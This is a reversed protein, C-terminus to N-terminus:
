SLQKKIFQRVPASLPWYILGIFLGIFMASTSAAAAGIDILLLGTAFTSFCLASIYILLFLKSKYRMSIAAVLGATTGIFSLAKTGEIWFRMQEETLQRTHSLLELLHPTQEHHLWATVLYTALMMLLSFTAWVIGYFLQKASM